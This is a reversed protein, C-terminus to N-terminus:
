SRLELRWPSRHISGFRTSHFRFESVCKRTARPLDRNRRKRGDSMRRTPQAASNMDAAPSDSLKNANREVDIEDGIDDGSESQAGSAAM